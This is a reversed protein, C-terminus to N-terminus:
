LDSDNSEKTKGDIAIPILMELFNQKTVVSKGSEQELQARADGAIRGGTKAASKNKDLLFTM